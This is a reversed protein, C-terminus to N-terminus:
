FQVSKRKLKGTCNRGNGSFGHLCSCNYSGETNICTSNIHCENSSDDVCENIDVISSIVSIDIIIIFIRVINYYFTLYTSVFCSISPPMFLFSFRSYFHSVIRTTLYNILKRQKQTEYIPHLKESSATKSAM